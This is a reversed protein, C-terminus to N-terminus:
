QRKRLRARAQTIKVGATPALPEVLTTEMWIKTSSKMMGSKMLGNRTLGIKTLGIKTQGIRTLIKTVSIESKLVQRISILIKIKVRNKQVKQISTMLCNKNLHMGTLTTLTLTMLTPLRPLITLHTNQISLIGSISKKQTTIHRNANRRMTYRKKLSRKGSM